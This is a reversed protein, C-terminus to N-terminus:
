LINLFNINDRLDHFLYDPKFEELDRYTYIGTSVAVTIAGAAKGHIIDFPTDGIVYVKRIEAVCYESSREIAKRILQERCDSDSGFGGFKFFKDLGSHKMKAWAGKEINGTAVGLLNNEDNHLYSLLEYIGPMLSIKGGNLLEANLLKVYEGFLLDAETDDYDRNLGANFMEKLILPDTKGDTRIGDMINKINFFKEFAKAAARTATGSTNLLTGDIDFLLLNM